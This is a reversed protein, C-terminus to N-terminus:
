PVVFTKGLASELHLDDTRFQQLQALREAERLAFYDTMGAIYDCILRVFRSNDRMEKYKASTLKEGGDSLDDFFSQVLYDPLLEPKRYYAEFLRFILKEALKDSWQVRSFHIIERYIFKNLEAQLPEMNASFCVVEKGLTRSPIKRDPLRCLQETTVQLVDDVLVNILYRIVAERYMLEDQEYLANLHYTQEVQKIIELERVQAMQVLGARLGDELDHTRQAIEDCVAVVQGELTTASPQEYNLGRYEFDPYDIIDKRLRTHKLIGERVPATLNLGDFPYRKELKDVIRVSQYNHKFGGLNQGPRQGKLHRKGTMIKDLIVEGLHGFPTHGIDHGLAIAEVLDINLGLVRAVTRALQSVELTHTIRTRYHDSETTLFVQRKHKLRRFARSHIIRDRDRQFATRYDHEKEEHLRTAHAGRSVQALPSLTKVEIEELETRSRVRFDM